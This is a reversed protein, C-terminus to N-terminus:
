SPLERESLKVIGEVFSQCALSHEPVSAPFLLLVSRSVSTTRHPQHHDDTNYMPTPMKLDGEM